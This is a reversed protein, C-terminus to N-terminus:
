HIRNPGQRIRLPFGPRFRGVEGVSVGKTSSGDRVCQDIIGQAADTIQALSTVDSLVGSVTTLDIVCKANARSGTLM